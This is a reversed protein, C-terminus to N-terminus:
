WDKRDDDLPSWWGPQILVLITGRGDNEWAELAIGISQGAEKMAMAHGPTPSSTLRDGPKIPGKAGDVKVPVRGALAVARYQRRVNEQLEGTLRKDEDHDGKIRAQRRLEATQPDAQEEADFSQGTLFGPKGSIVGALNSAYPRKSRQIFEPQRLNLVVVDGAELTQDAIKFAEAYDIGNASFVGDGLITAEDGDGIRLQEIATGNTFVRFWANAYSSSVDRIMNLDGDSDGGEFNTAKATGAVHLRASPTTTGIGVNGNPDIFFRAIAAGAGSADSIAFNNISYGGIDTSIAFKDSGAARFVVSSQFTDTTNLIINPQNDEVFLNGGAIHLKATPSTTGIGVYVNDYIDGSVLASGNWKPVYNATNSGVQPDSESTIGDDTECVVTGSTNILRISSGLDCGGTILNQKTTQLSNDGAQRASSEANLNSTLTADANSRAASENDINTQLTTDAAHRAAAEANLNGTLAADANARAASENDINTQLTTDAAQRAAAEANLNSTLTADANSRAAAENDINNQVTTDAAQRAAAESSIDASIDSYHKGDVMDANDTWLSRFSYPASTLPQRPSMEEDAGTQVGLYYQENFTLRSMSSVSGLVINYIGSKVQVSGQTEVWLENSGVPVNYIRFTMDVVGDVPNGTSDTLYGQYNITRPAEAFALGSILIIVAAVALGATLRAAKQLTM